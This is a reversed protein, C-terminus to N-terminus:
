GSMGFLSMGVLRDKRNTKTLEGSNLIIHLAHYSSNPDSWPLLRSM